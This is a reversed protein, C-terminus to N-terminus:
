SAEPSRAPRRRPKICICSNMISLYVGRVCLFTSQLRQIIKLSLECVGRLEEITANELLRRRQRPRSKVLDQLFQETTNHQEMM